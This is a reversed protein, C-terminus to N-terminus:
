RVTSYTTYAKTNNTTHTMTNYQLYHIYQMTHLILLTLRQITLSPIKLFIRYFFSSIFVLTSVLIHMARGINNNKDDDDNINNDNNNHNNVMESVYRKAIM